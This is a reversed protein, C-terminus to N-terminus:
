QAFMDSKTAPMQSNVTARPLARPRSDPRRPRAEKDRINQEQDNRYQDGRPPSYKARPRPCKAHREQDSANRDQDHRKTTLTTKTAERPPSILRTNASRTAPMESKTAVRPREQDRIDQEQDHSLQSLPSLENSVPQSASDSAPQQSAPQNAPQSGAQVVTQRSQYVRVQRGTHGAVRHSAPRGAESGDAQAHTYTDHTRAHTRAPLWVRSSSTEM